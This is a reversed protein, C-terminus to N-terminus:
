GKKRCLVERISPAKGTQIFVIYLCSSGWIFRAQGIVMAAIRAPIAMATAWFLTAGHRPTSCAAKPSSKDATPHNDEMNLTIPIRIAQGAASSVLRKPGLFAQTSERTAVITPPTIPKIDSEKGISSNLRIISPMPALKIATATGVIMAIM